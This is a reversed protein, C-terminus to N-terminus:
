RLFHRIFLFFTIFYTWNSYLSSNWHFKSTNEVIGVMQISCMMWLTVHWFKNMWQSFFLIIYFFHWRHMLRKHSFETHFNDIFVVYWLICLVLVFIDSNSLYVNDWRAHVSRVTAVIQERQNIANINEYLEIIRLQSGFLFYRSSFM